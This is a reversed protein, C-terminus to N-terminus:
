DMLHIRARVPIDLRYLSKHSYESVRKDTSKVNTLDLTKVEGRKNLILLPLVAHTTPKNPGYQSLLITHSSFVLLRSREKHYSNHLSM